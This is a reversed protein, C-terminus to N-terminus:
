ERPEIAVQEAIGFFFTDAVRRVTCTGIPQRARAKGFGKVNVHVCVRQQKYRRIGVGYNNTAKTPPFVPFPRDRGAWL